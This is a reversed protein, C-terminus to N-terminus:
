SAAQLVSKAVVETIDYVELNAKVKKIADKLNISCLPCATVITEAGTESALKIKDLALEIALSPFATRMGAGAGCCWSLHKTPYMEVFDLGPIAKLVERPADYVGCHRALECPDHYTIKGNVEGLKLKKSRILDFIYETIHTVKFPLEGIIKPYDKKFARYCAPCSTVVEKANRLENLNKKAQEEAQVPFGIRMLIAGCCSEEEGLVGFKVGGHHLIKATSLAIEQKEYSPSCGVFFMTDANKPLEFALKNLWNAKDKKSEGYPNDENKIASVIVEFAHPPKLGKTRLEFRSKEILSPFDVGFPCVEKCYGCALDLYLNSLMDDSSTLSKYKVQSSSFVRAVPILFPEFGYYRSVACGDRCYGCGVCIIADELSMKNSEDSNLNM